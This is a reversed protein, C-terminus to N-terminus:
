LRAPEDKVATLTVEKRLEYAAAGFVAAVADLDDCYLHGYRDLTLAATKHGLLRRVVKINM